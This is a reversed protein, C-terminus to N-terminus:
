IPAKGWLTSSFKGLTIVNIFLSALNLGTLQVEFYCNFAPNEDMPINASHLLVLLLFFYISLYVIIVSFLNRKNLVFWFYNLNNENVKNIDENLFDVCFSVLFMWILLIIAMNM